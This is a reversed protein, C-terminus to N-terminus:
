LKIMSYLTGLVTDTWTQTPLQITKNAGWDALGTAGKGGSVVAQTFPWLTLFLNECDANARTTGGSTADGITGGNQLVYGSPAVTTTMNVCYGTGFSLGDAGFAPVDHLAWATAFGLYTVRYINNINLYNAPISLANIAQIPHPTSGDVSLNVPSPNLAAPRFALTFGAPITGGTGQNSTVSYTSGSLSAALTGNNDANWAALAAMMARASDNITGPAQGEQWNINPDATQNNIATQSWQSLM